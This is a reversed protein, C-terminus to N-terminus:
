VEQELQAGTLSCKLEIVKLLVTCTHIRVGAEGSSDLTANLVGVMKALEDKVKM